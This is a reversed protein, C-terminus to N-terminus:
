SERDLLQLTDGRIRYAVGPFRCIEWANGVTEVPTTRSVVWTGASFAFDASGYVYDPAHLSFILTRGRRVYVSWVCLLAFRRGLTTIAPEELAPLLQVGHVSM